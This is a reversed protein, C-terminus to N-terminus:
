SSCSCPSPTTTSPARHRHLHELHQGGAGCRHRPGRARGHGPPGGAVPGPGRPLDPGGAYVVVPLTVLLSCYRLFSVLAPDMRFDESAYLAFALMMAQMMGFGAVALRKLAARRALARESAASASGAVSATYGLKRIERLIRELANDARGDLDVRARATAPDVRVGTLGPLPRLADEIQLACAACGMGGIQLNVTESVADRRLHGPRGGGAARRHARQVGRRGARIMTLAVMLGGGVFALLPLAVVLWMIPLRYWRTPDQETTTTMIKMTM